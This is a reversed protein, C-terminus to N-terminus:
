DKKYHLCFYGDAKLLLGPAWPIAEGMIRCINKLTEDPNVDPYDAIVEDHVHFVIPYGAADLRLMSMALCDRAIAQVANETLKGGYTEQRGWKKTEQDMGYYCISPSGFRNVGVHADLYCLRRGSPLYMYLNRGKYEFFVGHEVDQRGNGSLAELAATNMKYWLKVINPSAARWQDIIGQLEEKPIGMKLAGMNELAGVGGQYGCNHVLVGSVVFRNDPGCNLIDYTKVERTHWALEKKKSYSGIGSRSYDRTPIIWILTETNCCKERIAVRGTGMGEISFRASKISKSKENCFTSKRKRLEWQQGEQRDGVMKETRWFNRNFLTRCINSISVYIKNRSGRLERLRKNESERMETERRDITKGAVFSNAPASFVNPLREFNRKEFEIFEDMTGQFMQYMGYAGDSREMWSELAERVFNDSCKRFHYGSIKPRELYAGSSAAFGFQIARHEGDIERSWVIHDETARLGEYSITKKIGRYLLGNHPVFYTGDFVKHALTLSEIPILGIDTLILEGEAVCALEAVKGKQRLHSNKGHKEVPVGFMMSASACYIDDGNEFAKLRWKENALWAIIRAEIASFDAVYFLNGPSPIFSTRILQSLTDPVNGYFMEVLSADGSLVLNRALDLNEIHNQPLNQMQVIRGSWRGTRNAGYFQTLGRIRGDYGVSNMMAKYKMVSTKNLELKLSLVREITERPYKKIIDPITAKTVSAFEEETEELLWAKLQPGSKPNNMGTLEMMETILKEKVEADIAIAKEVFNRDILVGRDNIEQDLAYLLKETEPIKFASIVQRINRETNVDQGCYKMFLHWKDLDHEPLNRTRMGNIKTPKCPICFFRILSIGIGMKQQPIRLVEAVKGLSLPLGLMACKVMTCVWSSIPMPPLGNRSLWVNICTREFLANFATKITNNDYLAIMVREPIKEGRRIDIVRTEEKGFAYAFLLIEFDPHNAYPYVGSKTLDVPSYTEIDINLEATM